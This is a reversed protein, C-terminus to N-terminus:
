HLILLKKATKQNVQENSTLIMRIKQKLAKNKIAYLIPLPLCENNVRNSLEDTEFLDVYEARIALLIGINRGVSSLAEIEEPSGGGYIAGVKMRGEIDAAKESLIELYAEPKVRWKDAKLAAESVHADVVEFLFDNVGAMILRQRELPINELAKHLQVFGKVMFKDGILLATEKGMKGYITKVRKKAYLNTSSITM